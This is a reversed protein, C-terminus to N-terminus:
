SGLWLRAYCLGTILALLACFAMQGGKKLMYAVDGGSVGLDILDAMLSPIILEFCTEIAVLAMALFFDRKYEGMYSFLKKLERM